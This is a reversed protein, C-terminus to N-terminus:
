LWRIDYAIVAKNQKMNLNVRGTLVSQRTYKLGTVCTIPLHRWLWRVQAVHPRSNSFVDDRHRHYVHQGGPNDSIYKRSTCPVAWIEYPGWTCMNYLLIDKQRWHLIGNMLGEEQTHKKETLASPNNRKAHAFAHANRRGKGCKRWYKHAHSHVIFVCRSFFRTVAWSTM